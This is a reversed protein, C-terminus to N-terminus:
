IISFAPWGHPCGAKKIAGNRGGAGFGPCSLIDCLFLVCILVVCLYFLFGPCFPDGKNMGGPTLRAIM